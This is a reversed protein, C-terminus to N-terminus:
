RHSVIKSTNMWKLSDDVDINNILYYTIDNLTINLINNITDLGYLLKRILDCQKEDFGYLINEIKNPKHNILLINKVQFKTKIEKLETIHIRVIEM